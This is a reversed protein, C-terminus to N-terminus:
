AENFFLLNKTGTAKKLLSTPTGYQANSALFTLLNKQEKGYIIEIIKEYQLPIDSSNSCVLGLYPIGLYGFYFTPRM